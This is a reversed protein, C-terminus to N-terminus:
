PRTVGARNKARCGKFALVKDPESKRKGPRGAKVWQHREYNTLKNVADNFFIDSSNKNFARDELNQRRGQLNERTRRQKEERRKRQRRTMEREVPAPPTKIGASLHASPSLVAMSAGFFAGAMMPRRSLASM